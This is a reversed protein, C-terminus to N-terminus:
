EGSMQCFVHLLNVELLRSIVLANLDVLQHAQSISPMWALLVKLSSVSAITLQRKM